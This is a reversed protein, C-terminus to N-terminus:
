SEEEKKGEIFPMREIAEKRRQSSVHTYIATMSLNSHGLFEQVERINAGSDLLWTAFTHRFKHPTIEKLGVKDAYKRVLNQIQRPKLGFVKGRKRDGIYAKLMKSLDPHIEIYREKNGKGLVKIRSDAFDIWSIEFNSLEAVRMGTYIATYILTKDRPNDVNNILETFEDRKLFIPLRKQRVKIIKIDASKPVNQGKSSLFDIYQRIAAIHRNVTQPTLREKVLFLKYADINELSIERGTLWSSFKGLSHRYALLTLPSYQNLRLNDIFDQTVM